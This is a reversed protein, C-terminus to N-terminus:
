SNTTGLKTELREIRDAFDRLTQITALREEDLRSLTGIMWDQNKELNELQSNTKKQEDKLEKVDQQLNVVGTAVKDLTDSINKLQQESM